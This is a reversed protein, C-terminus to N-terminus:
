LCAPSLRLPGSPKQFPEMARSLIRRKSLKNRKLKKVNESAIASNQRMQRIIAVLADMAEKEKALNEDLQLRCATAENKREVIELALCDLRAEEMRDQHLELSKQEVRSGM